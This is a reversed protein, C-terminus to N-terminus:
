GLLGSARVQPQQQVKAWESTACARFQPIPVGHRQRWLWYDNRLDAWSNRLVTSQRLTDLTFHHAYEHPLVKEGADWLGLFVKYFPDPAFGPRRPRPGTSCGGTRDRDIDYGLSTTVFVNITKPVLFKDPIESYGQQRLYAGPTEKVDFFIGSTAYERRANEQYRKFLDVEGESLGEGSHAGHDLLLNVSIVIPKLPASKRSFFGGALGALVFDRRAVHDPSNTLLKLSYLLRLLAPERVRCKGSGLPV